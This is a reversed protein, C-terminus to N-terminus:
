SCLNPRVFSDLFAPAITLVRRDRVLLEESNVCVLIMQEGFMSKKM